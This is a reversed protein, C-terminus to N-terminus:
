SWAAAACSDIVGIGLATPLHGLARKFIGVALCIGLFCLAGGFTLVLPITDWLGKLCLEQVHLASDPTVRSPEDNM